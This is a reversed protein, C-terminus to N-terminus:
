FKFFYSNDEIDLIYVLLYMYVNVHNTGYGWLLLCQLWHNQARHFCIIDPGDDISSDTFIIKKRRKPNYSTGQPLM